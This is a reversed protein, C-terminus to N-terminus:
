DNEDAVYLPLGHLWLVIALRLLLGLGLIVALQWTVSWPLAGCSRSKQVSRADAQAPLAVEPEMAVASPMRSNSTLMRPRTPEIRKSKGCRHCILRSSM